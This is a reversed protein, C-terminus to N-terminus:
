NKAGQRLWPVVYETSKRRVASASHEVHFKPTVPYAFTLALADAMDPSRDIKSKIESKHELVMQGSMEDFDYEASTLETKMEPNNPLVGGGAIWQKMNDWMEIRKNKYHPNGAASAFNVEIVKHGLQRMRDIVGVGMGFDIFVADPQFKQMESALRGVIAMQDLGKYVIPEYALRGWRKQIVTRDDGQRACDVGIIKVSGFLDSEHIVARACAASVSDITILISNSSATFDCLYEQRFRADGMAAQRKALRDASYRPLDIEDARLLLHGWDADGSTTAYEYASHFQNMGKPTGGLIAWGEFDDLMPTVISLWVEQDMDGYEDLAVGDFYSGRISEANDAGYLTVRSRGGGANPVEIFLDAENKVAGPVKMGYHLLYQWVNKKSQKLYPNIYGYEPRPFQRTAKFAETLLTMVKGVTKGSRRPLVEVFVKKTAQIAHARVQHPYPVYGMDIVATDSM